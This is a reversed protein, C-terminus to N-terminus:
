YGLSDFLVKRRRLLSRHQEHLFMAKDLLEDYRQEWKTIQAEVERIQPITVLEQVKSSWRRRIEDDDDETGLDETLSRLDKHFYDLWAAALTMDEKVHKLFLNSRRIDHDIYDIDLTTRAYDDALASEVRRPM